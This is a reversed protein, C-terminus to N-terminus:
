SSPKSVAFAVHLYLKYPAVDHGLLEVPMVVISGTPIFERRLIPRDDRMPSVMRCSPPLRSVILCPGKKGQEVFTVTLEPFRHDPGIADTTEILGFPAGNSADFVAQNCAYMVAIETTALRQPPLTGRVTFNPRLTALVTGNPKGHPDLNAVRRLSRESPVGAHTM